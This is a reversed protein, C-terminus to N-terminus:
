PGPTNRIGAVVDEGQANVLYDGYVGSSRRHLPRPHLVRRHRLTEGMNGFVMTCCTSPPAWTTRRHTERRRYIRARETNWSRFVAEIAMDM